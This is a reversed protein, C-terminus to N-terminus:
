RFDTKSFIVWHIPKMSNEDRFDWLGVVENRECDTLVLEEEPDSRQILFSADICAHMCACFVPPLRLTLVHPLGFM